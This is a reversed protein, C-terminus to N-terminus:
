QEIIEKNCKGFTFQKNDSAKNLLDLNLLLLKEMAVAVTKRAAKIICFGIKSNSSIEPYYKEICNKLPTHKIRSDMEKKQEYSFYQIIFGLARNQNSTNLSEGVYIIEKDVFILYMYAGQFFSDIKLFSIIDKWAVRGEGQMKSKILSKWCDWSGEIFVLLNTACVTIYCDQKNQSVILNECM